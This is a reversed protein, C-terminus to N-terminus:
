FHSCLVVSWGSVGLSTCVPRKRVRDDERRSPLGLGSGTSPSRRTLAPLGRKWASDWRTLVTLGEGFSAKGHKQPFCDTHPRGAAFVTGAKGPYKGHHETGSPQNGCGEWM